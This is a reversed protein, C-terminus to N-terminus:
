DKVAQNSSSLVGHYVFIEILESDKVIWFKMYLIVLFLGFGAFATISVLRCLIVASLCASKIRMCLSAAHQLRRPRRPLIFISLHLRLARTLRLIQHLLLLILLVQQVILSLLIILIIPRQVDIYAYLAGILWVSLISTGFRHWISM